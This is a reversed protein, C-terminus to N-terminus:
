RRPGRYDRLSSRIRSLWEGKHVIKEYSNAFTRRMEVKSHRVMTKWDGSLVYTANGEFPCELVVRHTAAFEFVVYGSWFDKGIYCRLPRLSAINVLRSNDLKRGVLGIPFSHSERRYHEIVHRIDWEGPPLLTFSLRHVPVDLPQPQKHSPRCNLSHLGKCDEKVQDGCSPCVFFSVPARAKRLPGSHPVKARTRLHSTSMHARWMERAVSQSVDPGCITDFCEPCVWPLPEHAAPGYRAHRNAPRAVVRDTKHRHLKPCRKELHRILRDSRVLTGCHPCRPITFPGPGASEHTQAAVDNTSKSSLARPPGPAAGLKRKLKIRASPRAAIAKLEDAFTGIKSDPSDSFGGVVGTGSCRYCNPNAGRCTCDPVGMDYM